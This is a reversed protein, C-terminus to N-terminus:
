LVTWQSNDALCHLCSLHWKTHTYTHNHAWHHTNQVHWNTWHLMLLCKTFKNSNIDCPSLQCVNLDWPRKLFIKGAVTTRDSINLFLEIRPPRLDFRLYPMLISTISSALSPFAEEFIVSLNKISEHPPKESSDMFHWPFVKEVNVCWSVHCVLDWSWNVVLPFSANHNSPTENCTFLFM